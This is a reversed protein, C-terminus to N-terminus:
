IKWIRVLYIIRRTDGFPFTHKRERRMFKVGIKLLVYVSYLGGGSKQCRVGIEKSGDFWDSVIRKEIFPGMMDVFLRRSEVGKYPGLHKCEM